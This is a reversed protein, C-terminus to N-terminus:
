TMWIPHLVRAIFMQNSPLSFVQYIFIYPLHNIKKWTHDEPLVPNVVVVPVDKNVYYGRYRMIFSVVGHWPGILV